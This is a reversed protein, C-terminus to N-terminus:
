EVLDAASALWFNGLFRRWGNDVKTFDLVNSVGVSANGSSNM